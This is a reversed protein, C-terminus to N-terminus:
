FKLRKVLIGGLVGICIGANTDEALELVFSGYNYGFLDQLTINAFGVGISNGLAMKMVAEAVGGIGPTYAAVVKGARM